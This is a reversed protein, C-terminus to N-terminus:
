LIVILITRLIHYSFMCTFLETRYLAFAIVFALSTIAYMILPLWPRMLVTVSRRRSQYSCRSLSRAHAPLSLPQRIFQTSPTSSHQPTTHPSCPTWPTWQASLQASSPSQDTRTLLAPPRKKHQERSQPDVKEDLEDADQPLAVYPFPILDMSPPAREMARASWGLPSLFISLPLCLGLFSFTLTVRWAILERGRGEMERFGASWREMM